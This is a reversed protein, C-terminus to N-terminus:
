LLKNFDFHEQYYSDKYFNSNRRINSDILTIRVLGNGDRVGTQGNINYLIPNAYGTGGNSGDGQGGYGGIYGGGGGGGSEGQNVYHTGQGFTGKYINIDYFGTPLTVASGGHGAYENDEGSGGGGGAVLLISDKNQELSSLLGSQLAIHTAGGGSGGFEYSDRFTDGGGNYGGKILSYTPIAPYGLYSIGRGGVCIYLITVKSIEIIGTSYGGKGYCWSTNAYENDSGQGGQAGWCELQYIGPLLKISEIKGTYSYIYETLANKIKYEFYFESLAPGNHYYNTSTIRISNTNINEPIDIIIETTNQSLTGTYFNIWQNTLENFYELIFNKVCQHPRGALYIKTIIADKIKLSSTVTFNKGELGVFSGTSADNLLNGVNFQYSGWNYLTTSEIKTIDNEYIASKGSIFETIKNDM